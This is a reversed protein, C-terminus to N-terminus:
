TDIGQTQLFRVTASANRRAGANRKTEAIQKLTTMATNLAMELLEIRRQERYIEIKNKLTNSIKAM